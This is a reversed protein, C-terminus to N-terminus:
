NEERKFPIGNLFTAVPWGSLMEGNWPCNAAKSEWNGTDVIRSEDLDLITIDAISNEEIKGLSHWKEPLLSAPRSTFLKLLSELSVPRGLKLWTDLVVAVSCELSAIGFPAEQFPVDKEDLHWPAHDTIIADVTGNAIAQWLSSVDSRSRLPPNVKYTSDFRSVLIHNEDLSLHHATVDCTVPLGELKAKQIAEMAMATSVHTFHIPASTERCLAIGRAIDIYEGSAPMGKLGSVSSALGENVQGGETLSTEEPHEMIRVGTDISYLLATRVLGSTAIPSGDDTFFVAGADAMKGLEAMFKGARGHTVCGAPLVRAACSRQGKWLAFEVMSPNDVPPETNPMTVVTSYGGAAASRAGTTIDERWEFGPERFHVHIDIFGPCAIKGRLDITEIDETEQIKGIERIRGDSILIDRPDDHLKEGDFLTAGKLLIM